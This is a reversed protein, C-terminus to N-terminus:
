DKRSKAVCKKCCAKRGDDNCTWGCARFQRVIEADSTSHPLDLTGDRGCTQCTLTCVETRAQRLYHSDLISVVRQGGLYSM